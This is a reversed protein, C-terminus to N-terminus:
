LNAGLTQLPRREFDPLRDEISARQPELWSPLKLSNGLEAVPEDHAFGPAETAIEFLVGGPSRFYVSRFYQRDQVTTVPYHAALLKTRYEAQEADDVTRFAIHHVSGSGFRGQRAQPRHVIDIYLGIDGSAGKYRYRRGAPSPEEAIFEYGMQETLLEATPEVEHLWLTVGHFGRLAMAESIPGEEWHRFNLSRDDEILEIRMGDPDDFGIGGAGFREALPETPFDLGALRKEWFGLSGPAVSYAVAETEGTGRSGQPMGLWPFFTMVTGPSGVADGYYLHYTYPDDFNVTTKVLRQGLVNRYFDVNTQPDSAVATIHHLGQLAQM